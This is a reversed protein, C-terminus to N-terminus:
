CVKTPQIKVWSIKRTAGNPDPLEGDDHLPWFEHGAEPYYGADANEADAYFALMFSAEFRTQKERQGQAM